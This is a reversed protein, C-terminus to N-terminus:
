PGLVLSGKDSKRRQERLLIRVSCRAAESQVVDRGGISPVLANGVPLLDRCPWGPEQAYIHAHTRIRIKGDSLASSGAADREATLDSHM